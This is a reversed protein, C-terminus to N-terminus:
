FTVTYSRPPDVERVEDAPYYKLLLTKGLAKRRYNPPGRVIFLGPPGDPLTEAYMPLSQPSLRRGLAIPQEESTRLDMYWGDLRERWYLRIEYPEGDLDVTQTYAPLEPRTRIIRPM